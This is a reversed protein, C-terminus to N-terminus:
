ELFRQLFTNKHDLAVQDDDKKNFEWKDKWWHM